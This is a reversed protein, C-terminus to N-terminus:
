GAARRSPAVEPARSASPAPRETAADGHRAVPGVSGEVRPLDEIEFVAAVRDYLAPALAARADDLLEEITLGKPVTTRALSTEVEAQVAQAADPAHAQAYAILEAAVGALRRRRHFAAEQLVVAPRLRKDRGGAAEFPLKRRSLTSPSVGLMTAAQSLTPYALLPVDTPSSASM